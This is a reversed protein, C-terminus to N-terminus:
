CRRSAGRAGGPFDNVDFAIQEEAGRWTPATRPPARGPGRASQDSMTPETRRTARRWGARRDARRDSTEQADGDDGDDADGDEDAEDFEDSSTSARGRRQGTWRVDLEGLAEAQDFAIAAERFLELLALFRAVIVLTSDADAVLTASRAPRPRPAAPRVILAAQERVSVAPAHLHELGVTPRWRAADDGPRRDDGAARAHRGHGARAAARRVAAGARGPAAHMRGATAMREAFAGAIDKFARYQLLRAFLLDRAEICRSTRRTRRSPQRCCGPPRSTSCPRPSSCSSALGPRPGLRHRRGPRAPHARHVRRHGQGARDRHHRAQAQLDARAAPRVPGPLRRPAGRVAHRRRPPHAGRGPHRPTAAPDVRCTAALTTAAAEAM